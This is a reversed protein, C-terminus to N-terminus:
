VKSLILSSVLGISPLLFCLFLKWYRANPLSSPSFVRVALLLLSGGFWVWFGFASLALFIAIPANMIDIESHQTTRM